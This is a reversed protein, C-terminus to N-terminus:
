RIKEAHMSFLGTKWPTSVLKGCSPFDKAGPGQGMPRGGYIRRAASFIGRGLPRPIAQRPRLLSRILIDVHIDAPNALDTFKQAHHVPIPALEVRWDGQRVTRAVGGIEQPPKPFRRQQVRRNGRM